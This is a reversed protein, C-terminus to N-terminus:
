WSQIQLKTSSREEGHRNWAKGALYNQQKKRQVVKSPGKATSDIVIIKAGDFVFYEGHLGNHVLQVGNLKGPEQAARPSFIVYDSSSLSASLIPLGLRIRASYSCNRASAGQRSYM